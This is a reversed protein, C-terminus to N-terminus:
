VVSKRDKKKRKSRTTNTTRLTPRTTPLALTPQASRPPLPPPPGNNQQKTRRNHALYSDALAGAGNLLGAWPGPAIAAVVPALFSAAESIVEAFWEGLPNMGVPVGLPLHKLCHSYLELAVPDYQASPQALPVLDQQETTPFTEIYYKVRITLSTQESLGTFIAGSLHVPYIHQLPYCYVGGFNNLAAPTIMATDNPSSFSSESSILFPQVYNSTEPPNDQGIFALPVYCGDKAEWQKSGFLLLADDINLPPYVFEQASVSTGIGPAVTSTIATYSSQARKSTDQRWITVSGQKYLEATTNSVEFGAGILRTVGELFTDGPTIRAFAGNASLDVSSGTQTGFVELGGMDPAPTPTCYVNNYRQLADVTGFTSVNLWPWQIIHCDWNGAPLTVPKSVTISRTIVRVVSPGSEVDPWGTARVATDHFPDTAVTFWNRGSETLAGKAQLEQLLKESKQVRQM